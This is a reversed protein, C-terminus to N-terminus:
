QNGCHPCTTRFNVSVSLYSKAFTNGCSGCKLVCRVDNVNFAYTNEFRVLKHPYFFSDKTKFLTEDRSARRQAEDYLSIDSWVEACVADAVGPSDRFKDFAGACICPAFKYPDSEDIGFFKAHGAAYKKLGYKKVIGLLRKLKKRDMIM